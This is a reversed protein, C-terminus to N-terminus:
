TEISPLKWMAKPPTTKALQNVVKLEEFAVREITKINCKVRRYVADVLDDKYHFYGDSLEEELVDLVTAGTVGRGAPVSQFEDLSRGLM